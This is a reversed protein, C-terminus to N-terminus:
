SISVQLPKYSFSFCVQLHSARNIFSEAQIPDDDELFLRAIRIYTELKYNVTYQRCLVFNLIKRRSFYYVILSVLCRVESWNGTTHRCSRQCSRALETRKRLDCILTTPDSCGARRVIHSTTAGANM